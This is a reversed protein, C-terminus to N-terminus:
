RTQRTRERAKPNSSSQPDRDTGKSIRALLQTASEYPRNQTRALEAETPVLEGRLAKALIAQPVLESKRIALDTSVEIEDAVTLMMRAREVIQRQEELPPLPMPLARVKRGNLAPQNGGRGISRTKEYEALAWLWVYEPEVYGADFVLGAVNQNTTAAIDLIASQGRTKGEGIMAILVTGKPYLKASSADVGADTIREATAAIRCNAVEGSSVWPVSGDWYKPVKRSPTGGLRVDAIQGARCWCWTEPLEDEPLEIDEDDIVREASKLGLEVRKQQIAEVLQNGTLEVSTGARWDETLRGTTAAALISQRFRKLIKPVRDLHERAKNVEALLRDIEAVIRKQEALPPLPIKLTGLANFSVRPLQVGSSHHNAFSVVEPTSLFARLYRSDLAENQPFVLIDTSCIGDFNPICVKNLYPRLKGYLVDGARFVAKTSRVDGGIGRGLIRGTQAEIHELSLYRANPSAEPEVKEKSPEILRRLEVSEWGEPLDRSETASDDATGAVTASETM